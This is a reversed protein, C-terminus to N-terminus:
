PTSFLLIYSLSQVSSYLMAKCHEDLDWSVYRLIFHVCSQSWTTIAETPNSKFEKLSGCKESVEVIAYSICGVSVELFKWSDFDNVWSEIESHHLFKVKNM